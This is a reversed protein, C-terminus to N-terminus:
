PLDGGDLFFLEARAQALAAEGRARALAAELLQRRLPLVESPREKGEQIRADLARRAAEIDGAQLSSSTAGLATRAAAVRARVENAHVDAEAVALSATSRELEEITAREGGRAFRYSAGVRAVREDGERGADGALSWRSSAAASRARALLTSLEREAEVGALASDGGRPPSSTSDAGGPLSALDLSEARAVSSLRALEGWSLEVEQRAALLDLAAREREGAVLISEYPADAGAEIRRQTAALWDDAVTLDEARLDAEVQALWARSFAVALDALAIARASSRVSHASGDLARALDLRRHRDAQLPLEVEVSLDGSTDGDARRPGTTVGATPGELLIGGAGLAALSAEALLAEIELERPHPRRAAAAQDFTLPDSARLPLTVVMVVLATIHHSRHERDM